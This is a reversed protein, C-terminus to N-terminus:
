KNDSGFFIGIVGIIVAATAIKLKTDDVGLYRVGYFLGFIILLIWILFLYKKM